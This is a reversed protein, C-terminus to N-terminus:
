AVGDSSGDSSPDSSDAFFLDAARRGSRLRDRSSRLVFHEDSMIPQLINNSLAYETGSLAVTVQTAHARLGEVKRDYVASIDIAADIEDDAYSPLEGAEPM